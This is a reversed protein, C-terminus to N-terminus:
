SGRRKSRRGGWSSNLVSSSDAIDQTGEVRFIFDVRIATAGDVGGASSNGSTTSDGTM